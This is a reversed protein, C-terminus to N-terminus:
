AGGRRHSHESGAGISGGNRQVAAARHGVRELVHGGVRRRRRHTVIVVEGDWPLVLKPVGEGGLLRLRQAGRGDPGIAELVTITEGYASGRAAVSEDGRQAQRRGEVHRIQLKTQLM